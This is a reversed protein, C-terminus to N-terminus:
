VPCPLTASAAGKSHQQQLNVFMEIYQLMHKGVSIFSTTNICQELYCINNEQFLDELFSLIFPQTRVFPLISGFTFIFETFKHMPNVLTQHLIGWSGKLSCSAIYPSLASPFHPAGPAGPSCCQEDGEEWEREEVKRCIALCKTKAVPHILPAVPWLSRGLRARLACHSCISGRGVWGKGKGRSLLSQWATDQNCSCKKLYPCHCFTWVKCFPTVGELSSPKVRWKVRWKYVHWWLIQSESCPVANQSQATDWEAWVFTDPGWIPCGGVCGGGM